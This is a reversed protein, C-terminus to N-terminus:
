DAMRDLRDRVDAAFKDIFMLARVVASAALSDNHTDLLQSLQEIAQRRQSLVEDLLAQTQDENQADDLAERWQMQQMLFDPPMATNREADIPSGQLECLYAARRIPDRLRQHAENIRVSWQMAIRQAASGHAAHRDPHAQRQLHKWREDLTNLDVQFRKPLGLLAFDDDTLATM